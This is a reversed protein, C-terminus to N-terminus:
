GLPEAEDAWASLWTGRAEVNALFDHFDPDNGLTATDAIVMLLRRARTFAVNLRRRDAVFGVEGRENSRVLDVIVAEKERGQFGDVTGIELGQAVEDVLLDRLHRRQANYPTIVALDPPPLGRSLLRRVEAVTREAQGPNFASGEPDAEDDWGKGATDILILPTPRTDDEMVGLDALTRAAVEPAAELRGQYRTESPFAMLDAHMRYQVSLLSVAEPHRKALREFFTSGLGQREAEPDIVTPPLQQPDGALVLRPARAFAALALPDPVQTAEDLVVRDFTLERTLLTDASSCTTCIIPITDILAGQARRLHDRADRELQRAETLADRFAGRDVTGRDRRTFARNRLRRAESMWATALRRAESADLLADLSRAEVGPAIRTPHGLRLVPLGAGILGAALHDVATNSMATALIREGRAVARAIVEVLTRTKGTGPPGHILALGDANLAKEVAARQPANLGADRATALTDLDRTRLFVPTGEGYLLAGLRGVDESPRADRFRRIARDGVAFVAQPDDLDVHFAGSLLREPAEGDVLVGIRDGRVRDATARIAEPGDPDNWWLRLPAGPRIRLEGPPRRLWLRTRDGPAAEYDDVEVSKLADGRAVREALPTDRRAAVSRAAVTARETAWLRGLRVLFDAFDM